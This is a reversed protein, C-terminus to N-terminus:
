GRLLAFSSFILNIIIIILLGYLAYKQLKFIILYIKLKYIEDRSVNLKGEVVGM